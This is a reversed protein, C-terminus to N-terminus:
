PMGAFRNIMFATNAPLAEADQERWEGADRGAIGAGADPTTDHKGHRIILM